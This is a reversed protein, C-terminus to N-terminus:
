GGQLFKLIWDQQLRPDAKSTAAKWVNPPEPELRHGPYHLYLQQLNASAVCNVSQWPVRRGWAGYPLAVHVLTLFAFHGSVAQRRGSITLENYAPKNLEFCLHQGTTDFGLQKCNFVTPFVRVQRLFVADQVDTKGDVNPDMQARECPSRDSLPSDHRGAVHQQV